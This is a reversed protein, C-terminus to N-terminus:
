EQDPPLSAAAAALIDQYSVATECKVCNGETKVPGPYAGVTEEIPVWKKCNPCQRMGDLLDKINSM